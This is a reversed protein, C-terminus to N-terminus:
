IVLDILEFMSFEIVFYYKTVIVAHRLWRVADDNNAKIMLAHHKRIMFEGSFHPAKQVDLLLM